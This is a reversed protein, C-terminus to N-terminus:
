FGRGAPRSLSRRSVGGNPRRRVGGTPGKRETKASVRGPVSRQFAGASHGKRAARLRNAFFKKRKSPRRGGWGSRGSGKVSLGPPRGAPRFHGRNIGGGPHTPHRSPSNPPPKRVRTRRLYYPNTHFRTIPLRPLLSLYHSSSSPAFFFCRDEKKKGGEFSSCGVSEVFSSATTSKSWSSGGGSVVAPRGGSTRGGPPSGTPAPSSSRISLPAKGGDTLKSTHSKSVISFCSSKV